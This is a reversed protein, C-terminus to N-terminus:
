YRLGGRIVIHGHLLVIRGCSDVHVGADRHM